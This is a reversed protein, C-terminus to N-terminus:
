NGQCKLACRRADPWARLCQGRVPPELVADGLGRQPWLLCQSRAGVEIIEWFWVAWGPEPVPLAKASFGTHMAPPRATGCFVGPKAAPRGVGAVEAICPAMWMPPTKALIPGGKLLLLRGMQKKLNKLLQVGGEKVSGAVQDRTPFISNPSFCTVSHSAERHRQKRM